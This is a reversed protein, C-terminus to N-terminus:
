DDAKTRLRIGGYLKTAGSQENTIGDFKQRLTRTFKKQTGGYKIDQEYCYEKWREFVKSKDVRSSPDFILCTDAFEKFEDMEETYEDVIAKSIPDMVLNKGAARWMQHGKVIWNFIGAAELPLREDLTKDRVEPPFQADWLIVFLRRALGEDFRNFLPMENAMLHVTWTNKFEEQGQALAYASVSDGGTLEKITGANFTSKFESVYVMRSGRLQLNSTTRFQNGTLTELPAKTVCPSGLVNSLVRTITSKGNGAKPGLWIAMVEDKGQDGLSMGLLMQFASVREPIHLMCDGIVKTWLPCEAEPDYDLPLPKELTFQGLWPTAEGTALNVLANRTLVHNSPLRMPETEFFSKAFSLINSAGRSSLCYSAKKLLESRLDGPASKSADRLQNAVSVLAHLPKDKLQLWENGAREYWSGAYRVLDDVSKYLLQALDYDELSALEDDILSAAISRKEAASANTPISRQIPLDDHKLLEVFRSLPDIRTLTSTLTPIGTAIENDYTTQLCKMRDEADRENAEQLVANFVSTALDLPWESSKMAGAVQLAFEHHGHLGDLKRYLRLFETAVALVYFNSRLELWTISAPDEPSTLWALRQHTDPHVSPPMMTYFKAKSGHATCRLDLPIGFGKRGYGALDIRGTCSEPDSLRYLAHTVRGSHGFTATPPMIHSLLSRAEPCDLDVDVFPGEMRLGINSIPKFDDPEFNRTTWGKLTCEKGKALPIVPFGLSILRAAVLKTNDYTM